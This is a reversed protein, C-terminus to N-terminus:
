VYFSEGCGCKGKENPNVFQFGSELETEMYDMTTGILYIVAKAEIVVTIDEIKIVEDFKDLNEAYEIVYKYGSCGGSRVRVKIGITPAQRQTLLERIRAIARETIKIVPPREKMERM